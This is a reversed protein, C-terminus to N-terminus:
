SSISFWRCFGHALFGGLYTVHKGLCSNKEEHLPYLVYGVSAPLNIPRVFYIEWKEFVQLTVQPKLPMEDRRSPKEVRQFVDCTHFYEKTDKSVTPWWLGMRLPNEQM